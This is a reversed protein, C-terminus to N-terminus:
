HAILTNRIESNEQLKSSWYLWYKRLNIIKHMHQSLGPSFVPRECNVFTDLAKLCFINTLVKRRLLVLCYVSATTAPLRIITLVICITTIYWKHHDWLNSKQISKKNRLIKQAYKKQLMNKHYIYGSIIKKRALNKTRCWLEVPFVPYRQTAQNGLVRGLCHRNDISQVLEHHICGWVLRWHIQSPLLSQYIAWQPVRVGLGPTTEKSHLDKM